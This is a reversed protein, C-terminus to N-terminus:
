DIAYSKEPRVDVATVEASRDIREDAASALAAYFAGTGVGRRTAIPLHNRASFATPLIVSATQSCKEIAKARDPVIKMFIRYSNNM